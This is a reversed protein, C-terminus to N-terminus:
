MWRLARYVCVCLYIHLLEILYQFLSVNLAFLFDTFNFM